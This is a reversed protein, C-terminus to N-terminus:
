RIKNTVPTALKLVVTGTSPKQNQDLAIVTRDPDGLLPASSFLETRLKELEKKGMSDPLVVQAQLQPRQMLRNQVEQLQVRDALPSDGQLNFRFSHRSPIYVFKLSGTKLKMQGELLTTLLATADASLPTEALYEIRFTLPLQTLGLEASVGLVSISAPLPAALLNKELEDRLSSAMEPVTARHEVPPPASERLMGRIKGGEGIDSLSQVLDLRAPKGTRDSIREEFRRIDSATFFANTAVQIRVAITDEGITSASNIVASRGPLEFMKEVESIAQRARFEVSLQNFAMQLPIVLALLFVAAVVLRSRVSGTKGAINKLRLREFILNVIPHNLERQKWARIAELGAVSPM